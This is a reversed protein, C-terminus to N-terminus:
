LSQEFSPGFKNKLNSERLPRVMWFRFRLFGTKKFESGRQLFGTKKSESGRKLFGTKQFKYGFSM